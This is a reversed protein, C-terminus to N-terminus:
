RRSAIPYPGSRGVSVLVVSAPRLLLRRTSNTMSCLYAVIGTSARGWATRCCASVRTGRGATGAPLKWGQHNWACMRGMGHSTADVTPM